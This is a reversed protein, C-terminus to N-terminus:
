KEVKKKKDTQLMKRQLPNRLDKTIHTKLIVRKKKEKRLLVAWKQAKEQTHFSKTPLTPFRNRCIAHISFLKCDCFICIFIHFFTFYFCVYFSRFYPFFTVIQIKSMWAHLDIFISILQVHIDALLQYRNKSIEKPSQSDETEITEKAIKEKHGDATENDEEDDEEDENKYKEDDEEEQHVNVDGDESEHEIESENEEESEFTIWNSKNTKTMNQAFRSYRDFLPTDYRHPHDADSLPSLFLTCYQQLQDCIQALRQHFSQLVTKIQGFVPKTPDVTPSLELQRFLDVSRKYQRHLNHYMKLLKEFNQEYQRNFVCVHITTSVYAINQVCNCSLEQLAYLVVAHDISNHKQITAELHHVTTVNNGQRQMKQKTKNKRGKKKFFFFFFLSSFFVFRCLLVLNSLGFYWLNADEVQKCTINLKSVKRTKAFCTYQITLSCKQLNENEMESEEGIGIKLIVKKKKKKSFLHKINYVNDFSPVFLKSELLTKQDSYWQLWLNDNSLEFLRYKPRGHQGQKLITAVCKKKRWVMVTGQKMWEIVNVTVANSPLSAFASVIQETETPASLLMQMEKEKTDKENLM